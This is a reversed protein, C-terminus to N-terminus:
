RGAAPRCVGWSFPPAASCRRVFLWRCPWCPGPPPRHCGALRPPEDLRGPTAPPPVGDSTAGTEIPTVDTEDASGVSSGSAVTKRLSDRKVSQESAAYRQKVHRRM